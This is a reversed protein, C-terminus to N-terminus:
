RVFDLTHQRYVSLFDLEASAILLFPSLLTARSGFLERTVSFLTIVIANGARCCLIVSLDRLYAILRDELEYGIRDVESRLLFIDM